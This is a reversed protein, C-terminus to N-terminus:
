PSAPARTGVAWGAAIGIVTAVVMVVVSAAPEPKWVMLLVIGATMAIRTALSISLLPSRIGRRLGAPLAGATGEIGPQLRALPIGTLVGGVAALAVLSALSVVVWGTWAWAAVVAYIGTVLVLGISAPGLVLVWRRTRLWLRAEDGGVSRRMGVLGATEVAYTAAIGLAGVVHLFHILVYTM